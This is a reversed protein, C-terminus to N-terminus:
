APMMACPSCLLPVPRPPTLTHRTIFCCTPSPPPGQLVDSCIPWGCCERGVVFTRTTPRRGRVELDTLEQKRGELTKELKTITADFQLRDQQLKHIIEKYTRGIHQAEQAKINAKDLSNELTRLRQMESSGGERDRSQASEERQMEGLKKQLETLREEKQQAQHRLTNLKMKASHIKEKV